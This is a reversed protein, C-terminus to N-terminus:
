HSMYEDSGYYRVIVFDSDNGCFWCCEHYGFDMTPNEHCHLNLCRIINGQDGSCEEEDCDCDGGM